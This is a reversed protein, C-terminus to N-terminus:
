LDIVTELKYDKLMRFESTKKDTFSFATKNGKKDDGDDGSITRYTKNEELLLDAADELESRKDWDKQEMYYFDTNAKIVLQKIPSNNIHYQIQPPLLSEQPAPVTFFWSAKRNKFCCTVPICSVVPVHCKIDEYSETRIFVELSKVKLSSSYSSAQASIYIVLADGGVNKGVKKATMTLGLLALEFAALDKNIQSTRKTYFEPVGQNDLSDPPVYGRRYSFPLIGGYDDARCETSKEIEARSNKGNNKEGFYCQAIRYAMRDTKGFVVCFLGGATIAIGLINMGSFLMVISGAGMIFNGLGTRWEGKQFDSIGSYISWSVSFGTAICGLLKARLKRITEPQIRFRVEIASFVRDYRKNIVSFNSKITMDLTGFVNATIDLFGWANRQKNTCQEHIAAGLSFAAVLLLWRDVILKGPDSMQSSRGGQGFALTDLVRNPLFIGLVFAVPTQMLVTILEIRKLKDAFGLPSENDAAVVAEIEPHLSGPLPIHFVTEQDLFHQQSLYAIGASAAFIKILAAYADEKLYKEMKGSLKICINNTMCELLEKVYPPLTIANRTIDRQHPLLGTFNDLLKPFGMYVDRAMDERQAWLSKKLRERLLEALPTGQEMEQRVRNEGLLHASIEYTSLCLATDWGDSGIQSSIDYDKAVASFSFRGTGNLWELWFDLLSDLHKEICSSGQKYRAILEITIDQWDSNEDEIYARRPFRGRDIAQISECLAYPQAYWAQFDRLAFVAAHYLAACEMCIGAPDALVALGSPAHGNLAALATEAPPCSDSEHMKVLLWSFEM